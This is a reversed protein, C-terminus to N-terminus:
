KQEVLNKQELINAELLNQYKNQTNKEAHSSNQEANKRIKSRLIITM